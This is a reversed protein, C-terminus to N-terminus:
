QEFVTLLADQRHDAVSRRILETLAEEDPAEGPPLWLAVGSYDGLRYAAGLDFARGGLARVFNPFADLYQHPDPWVWRNAPDSSFALTLVAACREADARTALTIPPDTM